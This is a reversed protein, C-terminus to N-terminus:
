HCKDMNVGFLIQATGSNCVADAGVRGVDALQHHGQPFGAEEVAGLSLRLRVQGFGKRGDSQQVYVQGHLSLFRKQVQVVINVRFAIHAYIDEIGQLIIVLAHLVCGFRFHLFYRQFVDNLAEVLAYFILGKVPVSERFKLGVLLVM